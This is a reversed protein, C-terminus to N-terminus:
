FSHLICNLNRNALYRIFLCIHFLPISTKDKKVNLFQL